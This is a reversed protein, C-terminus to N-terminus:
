QKNQTYFTEQLPLIPCLFLYVVNSAQILTKGAMEVILLTICTSKLSFAKNFSKPHTLVYWGAKLKSIEGDEGLFSSTDILEHNIHDDAM